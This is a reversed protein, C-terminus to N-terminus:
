WPSRPCLRCLATPILDDSRIDVFISTDVNFVNHTAATAEARFCVHVKIAFDVHLAKVFPIPHFDRLLPV